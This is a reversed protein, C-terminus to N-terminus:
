FRNLSPAEATIWAKSMLLAAVSPHGTCREATYAHFRLCCGAATGFVQLGYRKLAPTASSAPMVLFGRGDAAIVKMLAPDGFEAVM